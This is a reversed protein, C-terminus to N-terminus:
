FWGSGGGEMIRGGWEVGDRSWAVARRTKRRIVCARSFAIAHRQLDRLNMWDEAKTRKGQKHDPDVLTM